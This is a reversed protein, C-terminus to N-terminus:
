ALRKGNSIGVWFKAVDQLVMFPLVGAGTSIATMWGYFFVHKLTPEGHPQFPKPYTAITILAFLALLAYVWTPTYSSAKGESKSSNNSNGNSTPKGVTALTEKDDNTSSGEKRRTVAM